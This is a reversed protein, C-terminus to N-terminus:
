NLDEVHVQLTVGVMLGSAPPEAWIPGTSTVDHPYAENVLGGFSPDTRVATEVYGVLQWARANLSSAITSSGDTDGVSVWTNIDVTIDYSENLWFQAGSGVLTRPEVTRRVEGITIIDPPKNSTAEGLEILMGAYLPDAACAQQIATLLYASAAPVSSVPITM